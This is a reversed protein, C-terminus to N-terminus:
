NVTREEVQVDCLPHILRSVGVRHTRHPASASYPFLQRAGSTGPSFLDVGQTAEAASHRVLALRMVDIYTTDRLMSVFNWAFIGIFLRKGSVRRGSGEAM